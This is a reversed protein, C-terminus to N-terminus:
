ECAVLLDEVSTPAFAEVVRTHKDKPQADKNCLAFELARKAKAAAEGRDSGSVCFLPTSFSACVTVGDVERYHVRHSLETM